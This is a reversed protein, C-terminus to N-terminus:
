TTQSDKNAKRASLRGIAQKALQKQDAERTYREVEALTKHGTISAIQNATCGAEALRRAAAKRLGHTVCRVPLGAAGINDAMWNGFGAISFPRGYATVLLTLHGSPTAEISRRLNAHLPIWLKEDTKLQVVHILGDTIAARGMPPVDSRRQGTYILLDFALRERTGVPWRKEYLALEDENWTHFEESGYRKIRITPDDTRWRADIAFHMLLRIKKLLDNAAGPRDARKGMMKQVHERRFNRVPRHAINEDKLWREIVLQYNRRTQRKLRLFDPSGFYDQVLRDFTGAGGRLKPAPADPEAALASRYADMFEDCGPLGPLPIRKGGPRRFYHRTVGHRDVFRDVYRLHLTTLELGGM